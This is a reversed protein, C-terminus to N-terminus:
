KSTEVYDDALARWRQGSCEGSRDAQVGVRGPGASAAGRVLQLARNEECGGLSPSYSHAKERAHVVVVVDVAVLLLLLFSFLWFPRRPASRVLAETTNAGSLNADPPRPWSALFPARRRRLSTSTSRRRRGRGPRPRPLVRRQLRIRPRKSPSNRSSRARRGSHLWHSAVVLEGRGEASISRFIACM